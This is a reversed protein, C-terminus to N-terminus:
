WGSVFEVTLEVEFLLMLVVLLLVLLLMVAVINCSYSKSVTSEPHVVTRTVRSRDAAKSRM